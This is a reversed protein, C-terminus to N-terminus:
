NTSFGLSELNGAVLLAIFQKIGTQRAESIVRDLLQIVVTTRRYEKDVVVPDIEDENGKAILGILRSNLFRAHL